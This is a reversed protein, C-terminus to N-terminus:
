SISFSLSEFSLYPTLLPYRVNQVSLFGAKGYFINLESDLSVEQLNLTSFGLRMAQPVNSPTTAIYSM